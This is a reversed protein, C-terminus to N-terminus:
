GSGKRPLRRKSPGVSDGARFGSPYVPVVNEIDEVGFLIGADLLISGSAMRRKFRDRRIEVYRSRYRDILRLGDVDVIM